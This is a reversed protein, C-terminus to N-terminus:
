VPRQQATCAGVVTDGPGIRSERLKAVLADSLGINARPVFVEGAPDFVYITGADGGSLRVAHSIITALVTELDLSSGVAQSVQALARLEAVSRSLEGTRAAVRNELDRYSEELQAATRNFEAGLAELEDGTRVDIRHSLDGAGIREAGTRLARIPAVMSRALLVSAFVSALLGLALIAGSRVITAQLPAFAESLPQEILVFWGPTPIAAYAALVEGGGLGHAVLPEADADSAARAAAQAARFQAMDTVDRGRRVEGQDPHAILRGEGDVIYAFGVRGVRIRAVVDWMAKLGVEAVIVELASEDAPLALTMYPEAGNRFYIPGFYTTGSRAAQFAAAQGYDRGSAVADLGIRSVRMQEKGAVDLYRAEVISPVSRLLRVFDIERQEALAAALTERWARDRSRPPAVAPDDAIARTTAQVHHVIEKVFGDIRQAAAQAKVREVRVLARKAEQYSFYFDVLSALTLLGGVLLLFVLLYKRFLSGQVRGVTM